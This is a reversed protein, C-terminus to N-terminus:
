KKLNITSDSDSLKLLNLDIKEAFFAKKKSFFDDFFLNVLKLIFTFM